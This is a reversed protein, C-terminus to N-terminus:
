WSRDIWICINNWKDWEITIKYNKECFKIIINKSRMYRVRRNSVILVSMLYISINRNKKVFRKHIEYM